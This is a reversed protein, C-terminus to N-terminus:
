WRSAEIRQGRGIKAALQFYLKDPAAPRRQKEGRVTEAFDLLNGIAHDQEFGPSDDRAVCRRAQAGQGAYCREFACDLLERAPRHWGLRQWSSRACAAFFKQLRTGRDRSRARNDPLEPAPFAPLATRRPLTNSGKVSQATVPARARNERRSCNNRM